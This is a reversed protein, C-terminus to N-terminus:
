INMFLLEQWLRTPAGCVRSPSPLPPPPATATAPHRHRHCHPPCGNMIGPMSPSQHHHDSRRPRLRNVRWRRPIRRVQTPSFVSAWKERKFEIQDSSEGDARSVRVIGGEVEDTLAAYHTSMYTRFLRGADHPRQVAAAFRELVLVEHM